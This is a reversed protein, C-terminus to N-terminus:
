RGVGAAQPTSVPKLQTYFGLGELVPIISGAQTPVSMLKCVRYHEDIIVPDTGPDAVAEFGEPLVYERPVGLFPGTTNVPSLSFARGDGPTEVLYLKVTSM